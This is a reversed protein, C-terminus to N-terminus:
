YHQALAKKTHKAVKKFPSLTLKKLLPKYKEDGSSALVKAYWAYVDQSENDQTLLRPNELEAAIIDMLFPENNRQNAMYRVSRAMLGLDSSKLGNALMNTRQSQGETFTASNTIVPNWLEFLQLEVISKKAYGRVKRHHDGQEINKLTTLYKPNGSYGLAKMLWASEDVGDRDTAYPLSEILRQEVQDFIEPDDLGTLVLTEIARHQAVENDGKFIEIYEAKTYEKAAIAQPLWAMSLLLVLAVKRM